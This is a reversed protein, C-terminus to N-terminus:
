KKVVSICQTIFKLTHMGGTFKTIDSEFVYTCAYQKVLDPQEQAIYYVFKTWNFFIYLTYKPGLLM